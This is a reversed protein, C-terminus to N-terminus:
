NLPIRGKISRALTVRDTYELDGGVPLGSALRTVIVGLQALQQMLYIATTDGSETPNTAIIIETFTGEAVRSLLQSISLQNPGIGDLPSIAGGLVHYLGNFAGSTEMTLVDQPQEVVCMLTTDRHPDSCVECIDTETFSGCVKCMHIRDQLTSIQEALVRNQLVDSQILHYAIRSASKSGIGPLRSLSRQLEEIVKM